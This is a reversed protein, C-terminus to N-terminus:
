VMKPPGVSFLVNCPEDVHVVDALGSLDVFDVDRQDNGVQRTEEPLGVDVGYEHGSRASELVYNM